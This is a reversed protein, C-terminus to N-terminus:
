WDWAAANEDWLAYCEQAIGAELFANPLRSITGIPEILQGDAYWSASIAGQVPAGGPRAISAFDITVRWSVDDGDARREIFRIADGERELGDVSGVGEIQEVFSTKLNDEGPEVACAVVLSLVALLPVTPQLLRM